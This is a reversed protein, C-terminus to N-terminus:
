LRYSKLRCYWKKKAAATIERVGPFNLRNLKRNLNSYNLERYQLRSIPVDKEGFTNHNNQLRFMKPKMIEFTSYEYSLAKRFDTVTAWLLDM